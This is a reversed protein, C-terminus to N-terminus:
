LLVIRALHCAFVVSAHKEIKGLVIIHTCLNVEDRTVVFDIATLFTCMSVSQYLMCACYAPLGFQMCIIYLVFVMYHIANVELCVCMCSHLGQSAGCPHSSYLNSRRATRAMFGVRM